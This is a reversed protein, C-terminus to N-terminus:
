DRLRISSKNVTINLGKEKLFEKVTDVSKEVKPGLTITKIVNDIGFYDLKLEYYRRSENGIQASKCNPFVFSNEYGELGINKLYENMSFYEGNQMKGGLTKAGPLDPCYTLRIEQETAFNLKKMYSVCFDLLKSFIYGKTYGMEATEKEMIAIYDCIEKKQQIEDYLVEKFCLNYYLKRFWTEPLKYYLFNKDIGVSVGQCKDGYALFHLYDDGISTCSLAFCNEAPTFEYDVAGVTNEFIETAMKRAYELEDIDMSTSLDTLWLTGNNIIKYFTEVSTYHYCLNPM